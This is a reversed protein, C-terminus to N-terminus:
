RVDLNLVLSKVAEHEVDSMSRFHHRHAFALMRRNSGLVQAHMRKLGRLRAAEVLLTILRHAVQTGQWADAVLITIDCADPDAGIIFAASGIQIEKGHADTVAVFRRCIAPDPNCVRQLDKEGYVVDTRGFRFYRTGISLAALYAALRETDGSAIPRLRIESGTAAGWRVLVEASPYARGDTLSEMGDGPTTRRIDTLM